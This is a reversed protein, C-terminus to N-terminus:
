EAGKSKQSNAVTLPLTPSLTSVFVSMQYYSALFPISFGSLLFATLKVGFTLRKNGPFQFPLHQMNHVPKRHCVYNPHHVYM